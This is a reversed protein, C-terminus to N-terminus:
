CVEAVDQAQSSEPSPSQSPAATDNGDPQTDSNPDASPKDASSEDASTTSPSPAPTTSAPQPTVAETIYERIAPYDPNVTNIVKNTLPLSSIKGEQMRLILTVWAKLQDQSIDTSINNTLAKALEPYQSLLKVPNAQEILNGVMCRQRRMRDYDDSGSRSRSFWLAQYGNLRQRGPQIFSTPADKPGIPIIQNVNVEVGNMADVLETFGELDIITYANIPLGTIESIVDRTTTLGPNPDGPFLDPHNKAAEQWVANLLCEDGCNYGNPWLQYLPNSEPFPVQQMNRPLGILTTNGTKTDVSAVMMSDTRVGERDEGADSGLLLVNVTPINVWPDDSKDNLTLSDKGPKGSAGFVDDLLGRQIFAYRAGFVTPVLTVSCVLSVLAVGLLAQVATPQLPRARWSSVMVTGFWVATGVILILALILLQQRDVALTVAQERINGLLSLALLAVGAVITLALLVGGLRKRGTAVLGAGPIVSALTIGAFRGFGEGRESVHRGRPQHGGPPASGQRVARLTAAARHRPPAM